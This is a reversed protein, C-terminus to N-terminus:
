TERKVKVIEVLEGGRLDAANADDTDIHMQLLTDENLKPLVNEFILAREGSVRAKLIDNPKIKLQAAKASNMHIHRTSRIAGEELYISGAPGVLLIPSSDKIDGSNRIPPDIGLYVADTRALEVQTYNRTPGLIRVKEIARMRPGVLTIVEGAAFQGPQYLPVYVTLQHGKGYLKELDAQAIHVHRASIGVPIKDDGSPNRKVGAYALGNSAALDDLLTVVEDTITGILEKETM